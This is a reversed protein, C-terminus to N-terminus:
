LSDIFEAETAFGLESEVDAEFATKAELKAAKWATIDEVEELTLDAQAIAQEYVTKKARALKAGEKSQYAYKVSGDENTGMTGFDAIPLYRQLFSCRKGVIDGDITVTTTVGGGKRKSAFLANFQDATEQEIVGDSVLAKTLETIADRAITKTFWKTETPTATTTTTSM